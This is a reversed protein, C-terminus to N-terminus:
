LYYKVYVREGCCPCAALFRVSDGGGGYDRHYETQTEAQTFELVSACNKCTTQHTHKESKGIVKVM